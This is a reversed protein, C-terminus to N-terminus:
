RLIKVIGALAETKAQPNRFRFLYEELAPRVGPSDPSRKRAKELAEARYFILIDVRVPHGRDLPANRFFDCALDGFLTPYEYADTIVIRGGKIEFLGAQIDYDYASFEEHAVALRGPDYKDTGLELIVSVLEDLSKGPHDDKGIARVVYRGDPFAAEIAADVTRGIATYDPEKELAYEPVLVDVVKPPMNHGYVTM